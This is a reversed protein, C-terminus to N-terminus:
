RAKKYCNYITMKPYPGCAEILYDFCQIVPSRDNGKRKQPSDLGSRIDKFESLVQPVGDAGVGFNGLALDAAGKGGTQGAGDVAFQPRCTYLVTDKSAGQLAYGWTEVFFRQIFAAESETEKLVERDAWANLRDQLATSEPSAIFKEYEEQWQARLFANEVM